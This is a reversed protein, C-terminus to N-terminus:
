KLNSLDMNIKIPVKMAVISLLLEITEMIIPFIPFDTEIQELIFKNIIHTLSWIHLISMQVRSLM